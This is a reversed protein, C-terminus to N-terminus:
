ISLLILMSERMSLLILTDIRTNSPGEADIRADGTDVADIRAGRPGEAEIRADISVTPIAASSSSPMEVSLNIM